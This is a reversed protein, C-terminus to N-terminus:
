DDKPAWILYTCSGIFGWTLFLFVSVRGLWELLAHFSYSWLVIDEVGMAEERVILIGLAILAIAAFFFMPFVIYLDLVDIKGKSSGNQTDIAM